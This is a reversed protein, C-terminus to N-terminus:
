FLSGEEAFNTFLIETADERIEGDKSKISGKSYDMKILNWDKYLSEVADGSYYSVMIKGKVTHLLDALEQHDNENFEHNYYNVGYYPPDVYYFTEKGDYRKIIEKYDLNEITVNKLRDAVLYVNKCRSYYATACNVEKSVKLGGSEDGGSFVNSKLFFFKSARDVPGMSGTKGTEKWEKQIEKFVKRSYPLMYAKEFLEDPNNRLTMLFDVLQSDLDNYVEIESIPKNLIVSAGGGFPEVYCKHCPFHSIIWDCQFYKGGVYPILSIKDRM